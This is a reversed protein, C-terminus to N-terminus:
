HASKARLVHTLLHEFIHLIHEAAREALMALYSSRAASIHNHYVPAVTDNTLHLRGVFAAKPDLPMCTSQVDVASCTNSYLVLASPPIREYAHGSSVCSSPDWCLPHRHQLM